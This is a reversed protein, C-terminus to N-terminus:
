KKRMLEDSLEIIRPMLKERQKKTVIKYIPYALVMGVIGVVGVVIGIIFFDSWEMICAMGTGLLLSGAVGVALSAITGPKETSRDLRRLLEMKNEEPAVYKNRIRKVEDQQKPSYTYSFTGNKDNNDSM